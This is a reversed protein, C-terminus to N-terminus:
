RPLAGMEGPSGLGYHKQYAEMLANMKWSPLKASFFASHDEAPVVRRFFLVPDRMCYLLDQWDIEKPDSLMFRKGDLRIDFPMPSGGERELADLDFAVRDPEPQTM